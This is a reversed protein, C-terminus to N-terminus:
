SEISLMNIQNILQQHINKDGCAIVDGKFGTKPSLELKRGQWDTIIGGSSEVVPVLAMFDYINLGHEIIIDIMGLALLGYLYCDGGYIIGNQNQYKTKSAINMIIGLNKGKFYAPSTSCLVASSLDSCKRTSIKKGNFFTGEGVIGIWREGTIPQNIIGLLAQNKYTLAILTGFIPKGIIFSITGDIPDIVWQYDASNNFNGFEEGVIGHNPFKEIIKKRIIEEVEKDAMTVPTNNDKNQEGFNKRFYKKIIEESLDTLHNAFNILEQNIM